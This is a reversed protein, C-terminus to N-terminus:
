REDTCGAPRRKFLPNKNYDARPRMANHFYRTNCVLGSKNQSYWKMANEVLETDDTGMVGLGGFARRVAAAIDCRVEPVKCMRYADGLILIPDKLKKGQTVLYFEIDNYLYIRNPCRTSLLTVLSKRDGCDVFVIVMLELMVNAFDSRKEQNVSLVACSAALERFDQDSLRKRILDDLIRGHKGYNDKSAEKGLSVSLEEWEKELNLMRPSDWSISSEKENQAPLDQDAHATDTVRGILLLWVIFCVRIHVLNSM